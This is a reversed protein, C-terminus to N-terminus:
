SSAIWVIWCAICGTSASSWSTIWCFSSDRWSSARGSTVMPHCNAVVEVVVKLDFVVEATLLLLDVRRVDRLVMLDDVGVEHEVDLQDTSVKPCTWFTM